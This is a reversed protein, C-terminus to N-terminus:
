QSVYIFYFATTRVPNGVYLVCTTHETVISNPIQCLITVCIRYGNRYLNRLSVKQLSKPKQSSREM